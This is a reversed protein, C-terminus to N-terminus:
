ESGSDQIVDIFPPQVGGRGSIRAPIAHPGVTLTHGTVAMDRKVVALGYVNRDPALASSTLTGIKRGEYFVPAPSDVMQSLHLTVLTRAVRQRSEMRAIIEQGTYCGKAFNLDDWLGVELPLYDSSIERGSPYGVRVRHGHYALSGAPRLGFAQGKELLATFLQPADEIPCMLAWHAGVLAKRRVALVSIGAILLPRGFLVPTQAIHPQVSELLADAQPGHLALHATADTLSSVTVHDQFFINRKLLGELAEGHGPESILILEDTHNYVFVRELLRGQPTLFLTVCAEGEGLSTIANTSMRNLFVHRDPGRVSLRAEHSRDLLAVHERLTDYEIDPQGYHLPISDPALQAGLALHLDKLTM